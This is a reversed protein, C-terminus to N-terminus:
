SQKAETSVLESAEVLPSAVPEASTEIPKNDEPLSLPAMKDCEAKLHKYLGQVYMQGVALDQAAAGSFKGQLLLQFIKNVMETERLLNTYKEKENM